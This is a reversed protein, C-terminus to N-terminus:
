SETQGLNEFAPDVIEEIGFFFVGPRASPLHMAVPAQRGDARDTFAFSVKSRFEFLFQVQLGGLKTAQLVDRERRRPLARM